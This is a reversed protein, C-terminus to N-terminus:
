KALVALIEAAVATVGGSSPAALRDALTPSHAAVGGRDIKHWIPLIAKEGSATERAVLGDLEKQPWEKQFFNPSLIVM